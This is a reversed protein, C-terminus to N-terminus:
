YFKEVTLNQFQPPIRVHSKISKRFMEAVDHGETNPAGFGKTWRILVGHDIRDQSSLIEAEATHGDNPVYLARALIHFSPFTILPCNLISTLFLASVTFGLPLIEGPKLAHEDAFNTAIFIKLCQACFDFLAQGEGQRQEETLRYKSQTIEFKGGGQVNVL